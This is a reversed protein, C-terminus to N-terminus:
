LLAADLRDLTSRATNTREGRERALGLNELVLAVGLYVAVHTLESGLHPVAALEWSVGGEVLPVVVQRLHGELARGVHAKAGLLHGRTHVARRAARVAAIAGLTRAFVERVSRLGHHDSDLIRM